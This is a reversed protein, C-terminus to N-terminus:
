LSGDIERTGIFITWRYKRQKRTGTKAEKTTRINREHDISM